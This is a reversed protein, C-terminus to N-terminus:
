KEMDVKEKDAITEFNDKEENAKEMAEKQITGKKGRRLAKNKM